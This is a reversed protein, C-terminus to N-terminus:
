HIQAPAERITFVATGDVSRASRYGELTANCRWGTREVISAAAILSSARLASRDSPITTWWRFGVERPISARDIFIPSKDGPINSPTTPSVDSESPIVISISFEGPPTIAASSGTSKLTTQIGPFQEEIHFRKV